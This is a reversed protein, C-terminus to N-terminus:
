GAHEYAQRMWEILEDDVEEADSIRITFPAGENPQERRLREPPDAHEFDLGVEVLAETAPGVTAFPRARRLSVYSDKPSIEFDGFDGLRSMIADHIPRLKKREGSYIRALDGELTRPADEGRQRYVHVVTEADDSAMGLEEELLGRLDGHQDRGSEKLMQLLEDLTKGAREQIRALKSEM